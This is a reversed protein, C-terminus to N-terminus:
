QILSYPANLTSKRIQLDTQDIILHIFTACAITCIIPLNKIDYM